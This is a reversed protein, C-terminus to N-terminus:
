GMQRENMQQVKNYGQVLRQERKPKRVQKMFTNKSLKLSTSQNTTTHTHKLIYMFKYLNSKRYIEKLQFGNKFVEINKYVGHLLQYKCKGNRWRSIHTIKWVCKKGHVFHRRGIRDGFPMKKKKAEYNSAQLKLSQEM